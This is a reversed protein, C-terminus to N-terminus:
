TATGMTPAATATRRRPEASSPCRSWVIDAMRDGMDRSFAALSAGFERLLNTLPGTENSHHDWGGIDAFAVEVGVDAKILRAIQQLRRGFEGMYQAGNRAHLAASPTSDIMRVAEFTGRGQAKLQADNSAAYLSELIDSTEAPQGGSVEAPRRRRDRRAVGRLTRPVQTGMAIARMPSVNPSDLPLARNM